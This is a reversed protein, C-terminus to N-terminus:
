NNPTYIQNCETVLKNFNNEIQIQNFVSYLYYFAMNLVLERMEKIHYLSKMGWVHKCVDCLYLSYESSDLRPNWEYGLIFHPDSPDFIANHAEYVNPFVTSVKINYFEILSALFRQEFFITDANNPLIPGHKTIERYQLSLDVWKNILTKSQETNNIYLFATNIPLADWNYKSLDAEPIWTSPSIYTNYKCNLDYSERHYGIIDNDWDLDLKESIFLDTDVIVFKENLDILHKALYLKPFSWYKKRYEPLHASDLFDTNIDDYLIDLNYEQLIKLSQPDTYLKLLGYNQKWFLISALQVLLNIQYYEKLSSNQTYVHYGTISKM